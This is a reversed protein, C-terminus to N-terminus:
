TRWLTMPRTPSRRLGAEDVGMVTVARLSSRMAPTADTDTWDYPEQGLEVHLDAAAGALLRTMRRDARRTEERGENRLTVLRGAGICDLNVIFCGRIDSRHHSLFSRMGAHDLSSGGLAVFWIDHAILEDDGLALVADRLEDPTPTVGEAAADDSVLRLGGRPAAGGRWNGGEPYEDQDGADDRADREEARGRLRGLFSRMSSKQKESRRKTDAHETTAADAASITELPEIAPVARRDAPDATADSPRIRPANPTLRSRTM